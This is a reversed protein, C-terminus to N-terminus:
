NRESEEEEVEKMLRKIFDKANGGRTGNKM